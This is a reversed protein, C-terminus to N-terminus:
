KLGIKALASEVKSRMDAIDIGFKKGLSDITDVVFDANRVLEDSDAVTASAMATVKPTEIGFFRLGPFDMLEQTVKVKVTQSLIHNDCEIEATAKGTGFVSLSTVMGSDGKSGVMFNILKTKTANNMPDSKWYRYADTKVKKSDFNCKIVAKVRQPILAKAVGQANNNEANNDAANVPKDHFDADVAGTNYVKDAALDLYGPYAVERAATIATKQAFSTIIMNQLIYLGIFILVLLCFFVIPYIIAAEIVSIAGDENALIKKLKKWM